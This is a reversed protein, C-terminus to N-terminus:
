ARADGAERRAARDPPAANERRRTSPGTRNGWETVEGLARVVNRLNILLGGYEQWASRVLAEDSLQVVLDSMQRPLEQLTAADHSRVAASTETVLRAWEQRFRPDWVTRNEASTVVTRAMSLVDAVAQELLHLM